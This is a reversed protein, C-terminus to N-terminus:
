SRKVHVRPPVPPTEPENEQLSSDTQEVSGYLENFTVDAGRNGVGIGDDDNTHWNSSEGDIIPLEDEKRQKGEKKSRSDVRRRVKGSKADSSPREASEYLPSVDSAGEYLPNFESQSRYSVASQYLPNLNALNGSGGSVSGAPGPEYLPNIDVNSIEREPKGAGTEYLPNEQETQYIPNNAAKERQDGITLTSEYNPNNISKMTMSTPRDGPSQIMDLPISDPDSTHGYIPNVSVDETVHDGDDDAVSVDDFEKKRRKPSQVLRRVSLGKGTRSILIRKKRLYVLVIILIIAVMTVAVAVVVPTM